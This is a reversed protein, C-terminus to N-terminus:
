VKASPGQAPAPEPKSRLAALKSKLDPAAAGAEAEVKGAVYDAAMGAGAGVAIGAITVAAVPAAVVALAAAAGAGLLLGAAAGVAKIGASKKLAQAEKELGAGGAENADVLAKASGAFGAVAGAPGAFRGLLPVAKGALSALSAAGAMSSLGSEAASVAAKRGDGERYSKLAEKAALYGGVLALGAGAGEAGSAAARGLKSAGALRSASSEAPRVETRAQSAGHAEGLGPAAEKSRKLALRAAIEKSEALELAKHSEALVNPDKARSQAAPTPAEGLAAKVSSSRLLSANLYHAEPGDAKIKAYLGLLKEYAQGASGAEEMVPWYPASDAHGTLALREAPALKSLINGEFGRASMEVASTSYGDWSGPKTLKGLWSDAQAAFSQMLSADAKAAPAGARGLDATALVFADYHASAASQEGLWRSRWGALAEPGAKGDLLDGSIARFEQRAQAEDGGVRNGYFREYIGKEIREVIKEKPEESFRRSIEGGDGTRVTDMLDKAAAVLMGRMTPSGRFKDLKPGDLREVLETMHWNEGGALTGLYGDLGHFWEHGLAQWGNDASFNLLTRGAVRAAYGSARGVQAHFHMDAHDLGVAKDPLGTAKALAGLSAEVRDLAEKAEAASSLAGLRIEHLGYREALDKARGELAKEAALAEQPSAGWKEAPALTTQQGLSIADLREWGGGAAKFAAADDAADLGMRWAKAEAPAEWTLDVRAVLLNVADSQNLADGAGLMKQAIASLDANEPLGLSQAAGSLAKSRLHETIQRPDMGKMKEPDGVAEFYGDRAARRARNDADDAGFSLFGFNEGERWVALAQEPSFGKEKLGELLAHM